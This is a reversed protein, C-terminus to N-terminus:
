LIERWLKCLYYFGGNVENVNEIENSYQDNYLSSSLSSKNDASFIEHQIKQITTQM